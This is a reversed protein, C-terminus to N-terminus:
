WTGPNLSDPGTAGGEAWAAHGHVFGPVDAGLALGLAALRVRDWGLDWVRDLAVLTAAADSSGGGLGGGAPIRKDVRITAGIGVGAAEQLARAARVVLDDEAELGPLGGERVIAGDARTEVTLRDCLDIFQFVTQLEHWGDERRGVVHLFLNLKAPASVAVRRDAMVTM